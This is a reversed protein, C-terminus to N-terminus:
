RSAGAHAKTLASLLAGASEAGAARALRHLDDRGAAPRVAVFGALDSAAIDLGAFARHVESSPIGNLWDLLLDEVGREDVTGILGVRAMGGDPFVDLRIHTAPRQDAVTVLQDVDPLVHTSGVLEFWEPDAPLIGDPADCARVQCSTPSNFAFDRTDLRIQQVLGRAALKFIVWDNGDDRRRSTEWGCAAEVVPFSPAILHSASSYFDDSTSEVLGGNRSAALDITVNCTDRPDVVARGLVRLRAVGGDPYISLRVHTVRMSTDVVFEHESDGALKSQAVLPFWEVDDSLVESASPRGDISCGEVSCSEPFNGTYHATDVIIREVTGPTGLRVIAWENGPERRRWTEWGDWGLPITPPEPRILNEAKVFSEDSVALISAGYHRSALDIQNM